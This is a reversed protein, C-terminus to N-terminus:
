MQKNSESASEVSNQSNKTDTGKWVSQNECKAASNQTFVVALENKLLKTAELASLFM